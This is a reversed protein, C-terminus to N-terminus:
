VILHKKLMKLLLERRVPKSIYDDFGADIAKTRDENAAFATQAIIKLAPKHEKILKLAEYGNLDPLRIDMLVINIEQELAIKVSEKGFETHVIDFGTDSLIELLYESNYLDDEVILLKIDTFDYKEPALTTIQIPQVANIKRYPISFYFTTGKGIESELWINGGLLNVLGKVISLGLGTGGYLRSQGQSLQSFREFIYEHKDSPIGIGTDSLYFMLEGNNLKCGGEIAGSSTFKFANGILNIMIQKLKGKDTLILNDAGNPLAELKFNIQDKGTRKQHEKFFAMLELFLFNLDCEEINITLQASEIKAIDLIDNIIELLDSCRQNIIESYQDLKPKNNYQSSLLASFGMIANMPTRIEHSMNQLFSTKLRDSEEAHEKARILEQNTQLLEENLQMYEENQAAIEKNKEQLIIEAHKRDTIDRAVAIIVAHGFYQGLTINVDKPFIEGSKSLGWFEFTQPEGDIAKQIKTAIEDLDNKGPASLFEPKKGIFDQKKYGYLKEVAHNVELFSGDFAQIYVAESVSDLIGRYTSESIKLKEEAILLENYQTAIEINKQHVLLEAQKRETIDHTFVSVGIVKGGTIIPNMSVESFIQTQGFVFHEEFTFRENALARDYRLKWVKSVEKPLTELINMGAILQIGFAAKFEKEFRGNIFVLQYSNDIAWIIDRTNEVLASLNARNDLLTDEAKKRELESAARYSFLSLISEVESIRQLEKNDLIAIIGLRNGKSDKLALGMYSEIGRAKLPKDKPYLNAVNNSVICKDDRIVDYCPTGDLDYANNEIIKNNRYYAITKIKENEPGIIQGVLAEKVQLANALNAVLTSFISEEDNSASAMVVNRLAEEMRKKDTIDKFIGQNIEKGEITIITSSVEVIKIAGSKTVVETELPLSGKLAVHTEFDKIYKQQKEIPHLMSHHSGIIEDQIREILIEAAKNCKILKGSSAEAWFIADNSNEFILRFQTESEILKQETKKRNSIVEFFGLVCIENDIKIYETSLLAHGIEGNKSKYRLEYQKLNEHKKIAEFYAHRQAPSDWVVLTISQDNLLEDRTYGTLKEVASNVDILRQDSVRLITIVYPSTHFVTSLKQESLKLTENTEKWESINRSVGLFGILQNNKDFKPNSLAEVWVYQGNKCLQKFEFISSKIEGTALYNEQRQIFTAKLQSAMSPEIFDFVNKGIVELPLFGALREISSSIYTFHLDLDLEWIVDTMQEAILRYKQENAITFDNALKLNALEKEHSIKLIDIESQLKQLDAILDEKSKNRYDM